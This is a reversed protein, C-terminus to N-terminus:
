NTSRAQNDQVFKMTAGGASFTNENYSEFFYGRDDNFVRPEYIIMGPFNTTTFPM